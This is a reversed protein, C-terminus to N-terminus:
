AIAIAPKATFLWEAEIVNVATSSPNAEGGLFDGDPEMVTATGSFKPTTASPTTGGNPWLQVAVDSGANNWAYYWLSSADTNQRIKLKLTYDRLGGLLADAFSVFDSDTEKSSIVVSSVEDTYDTSAVKFVMKRTGIVVDAM